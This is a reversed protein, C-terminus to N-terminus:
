SNDNDKCRKQWRKPITKLTYWTFNNRDAWEAMTFRSGDKRKRAGPMPTKPNMFIFVLEKDPHNERVSIYKRPEGPRFRGKCEIIVNDENKPVFDPLYKATYTYDLM